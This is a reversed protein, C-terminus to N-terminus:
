EIEIITKFGIKLVTFLKNQLFGYLQTIDVKYVKELSNVKM